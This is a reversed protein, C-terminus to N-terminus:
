ARSGAQGRGQAGPRQEALAAAAAAAAEAAAAAAVVVSSKPRSEREKARKVSLNKQQNIM